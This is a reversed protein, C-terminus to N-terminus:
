GLAGLAAQADKAVQSNPNLSIAKKLHMAADGKDNLKSYVMGLHYQMTADDPNTKVADELLDRAFTYTGKYYYAWALTDATNPSNPMGQRAIQALSMAVDTNEGNQLMMYALNNAALPQRPQIQLAKRYYNEAQGLNGGTEELTGLLAAVSADNPHANLWQQWASIANATQGRLMALQTYLLIAENDGPNIQIAKQASAAAQDLNKNHMQLQVLLDYFGSNQPRKGIQENILALAKEPQKQFTDYVALLRLAEISDPDYQLAQQLLSVAEPYRKQALRLKGLQLYGSPDKPAISIATKLDVEAKASDNHSLEVISRWVYGAPFRPVATITKDAVDALLTMDGLQSAISALANEAALMSPNLKQVELFSREALDSDGNAFAARGLWYQLFPDKPSDKVALELANVADNAKGADILLIGNLAIVEPDKANSKMLKAVVTRATDLDNAQILSRAYGKQVSVNSPYKAALSAFEARAKDFQGSSMYYDALLRVGQPNDALDHAAQRLVQEARAQDGEKLIVEALNKRATLSKPDAAVTSWGIQEAEPLRNNKAYFAMLLIKANVSNPDLAVAKKFEDETTAANSPDSSLLFALNDHFAARGPDLEVARRMETVALDRNGRKYAIESLLAHLDPNNPRAAMVVDAQAQADDIRGGVLLLNAMSLRAAFNTPDLDVTHQFESYAPGLRGMHLYTQALEYHAEPFNRDIKLANSFQITAERWKGEALYRKGSELYKQKAVNPDSHCGSLFALAVFLTTFALFGSRRSNKLSQNRSRDLTQPTSNMIKWGEQSDHPCRCAWKGENM